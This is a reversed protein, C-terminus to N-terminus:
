APKGETKRGFLGSFREVVVFTVPIIFVAILTAALM